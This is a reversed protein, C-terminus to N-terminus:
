STPHLLRVPEFGTGEAVHLRPTVTAYCAGVKGTHTRFRGGGGIFLDIEFVNVKVM